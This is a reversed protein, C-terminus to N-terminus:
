WGPIHLKVGDNNNQKPIRWGKEEKSQEVIYDIWFQMPPKGNRYKAKLLGEFDEQSMELLLIVEFVLEQYNDMKAIARLLETCVCNREIEFDLRKM